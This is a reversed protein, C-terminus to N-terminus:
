RTPADQLRPPLLIILFTGQFRSHFSKLKGTIVTDKDYALVTWVSGHHGELVVDCEWKGVKWIRATGDWGGSVIWGGEASTDLTCVNHVHGLLMADANDGASRGPQRAEIISDQGASIVLGEPYDPVPPLYTLANIFASGHSLITYDYTPPHTSILKWLRVTADRSASLVAEPSPFAM